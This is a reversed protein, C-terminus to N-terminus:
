EICVLVFQHHELEDPEMLAFALSAEREFIPCIHIQEIVHRDFLDLRFEVVDLLHRHRLAHDFAKPIMWGKAFLQLRREKRPKAAVLERVNMDAHHFALEGNVRLALPGCDRHPFREDHVHDIADVEACLAFLEPERFFFDNGRAAVLEDLVDVNDHFRVGDDCIEARTTPPAIIPLEFNNCGTSCCHAFLKRACGVDPDRKFEANFRDAGDGVFHVHAILANVVFLVVCAPVHVRVIQEEFLPKCEVAGDKRDRKRVRVARVVEEFVELRKGLQPDSCTVIGAVRKCVAFLDDLKVLQDSDIWLRFENDERVTEVCSEDHLQVRVEATADFERKAPARVKAVVHTELIVFVIASQFCERNDALESVDRSACGDFERVVSLFQGAACRSYQTHFSQRIVISVFMYINRTQDSEDRPRTVGGM